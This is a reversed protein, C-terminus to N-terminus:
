YESALMITLVRATKSPDSPDESSFVYAKDFYDIKWFVKERVEDCFFAGFDYSAM